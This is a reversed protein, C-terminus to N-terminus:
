KRSRRQSRTTHGQRSRMAPRSRAPSSATSRSAVAAAVTATSWSAIRIPSRRTVAEDPKRGEFRSEGPRFDVGQMHGYGPLLRTRGPLFPMHNTGTRPRAPPRGRRRVRATGHRHAGRRDSWSPRRRKGTTPSVASCCTWGWATRVSPSWTPLRSGGASLSSQSRTVPSSMNRGRPIAVFGDDRNFTTM